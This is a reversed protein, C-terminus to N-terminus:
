YESRRGAGDGALGPLYAKGSMQLSLPATVTELVLWTLKFHAHWAVGAKDFDTRRRHRSLVGPTM